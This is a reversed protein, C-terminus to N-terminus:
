MRGSGLLEAITVGFWDMEEKSIWNRFELQQIRRSIETLIAHKEKVNRAKSLKYLCRNLGARLHLKEDDFHAGVPTPTLRDVSLHQKGSSESTLLKEQRGEEKNEEGNAIVEKQM